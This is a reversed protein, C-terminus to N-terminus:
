NPAFFATCSNLFDIKVVLGEDGLGLFEGAM